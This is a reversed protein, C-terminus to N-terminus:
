AKENYNILSAEQIKSLATKKLSIFFAVSSQVIHAPVVRRLPFFLPLNYKGSSNELSAELVVSEPEFTAITKPLSLVPRVSSCSFRQLM